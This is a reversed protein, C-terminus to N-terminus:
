KDLGAAKTARQSNNVTLKGNIYASLWQDSSLTFRENGRIIEISYDGKISVNQNPPLEQITKNVLQIRNIM